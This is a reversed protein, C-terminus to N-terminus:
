DIELRNLVNYERIREYFTPEERATTANINLIREEESPTFIYQEFTDSYYYEGQADKMAQQEQEHLLNLFNVYCFVGVGFLLLVIGAVSSRIFDRKKRTNNQERNMRNELAQSFDVPLPINNDLHRMGEIMTYYIDLEERCDECRNVHDLFQQKEDKELKYDIYAIIKSQAELCTM